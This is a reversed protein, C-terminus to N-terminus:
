GWARARAPDRRGRPAGSRTAAPRGARCAAAGAVHHGGRDARPTPRIRACSGSTRRRAAPRRRRCRRAGSAPRSGAAACRGACTGAAAPDAGPDAAARRAAAPEGVHEARGAVGLHQPVPQLAVASASGSLGSSRAATARISAPARRGARAPAPRRRRPAARRLAVVRQEVREDGRGALRLEVSRPGARAVRRAGGAPRWATAGAPRRRALADVARGVEVREGGVLAPVRHPDVALLGPVRDVRDGRHDAAGAALSALASALTCFRSPSCWSAATAASVQSSAPPSRDRRGCRERHGGAPEDLPFPGRDPRDPGGERRRPPPGGPSAPGTAAIVRIRAAPPTTQRGDSRRRRSRRRAGDASRRSTAAWPCAPRRILM